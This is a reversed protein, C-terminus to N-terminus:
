AVDYVNPLMVIGRGIDKGELDKLTLSKGSVILVADGEWKKHKKKSAKCWVVTFYKVVSDPEVEQGKSVILDEPPSYVIIFIYFIFMNNSIVEINLFLSM